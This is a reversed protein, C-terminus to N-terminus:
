NEFALAEEYSISEGQWSFDLMVQDNVRGIVMGELVRDDEQAFVENLLGYTVILGNDQRVLLINQEDSQASYIVIGDDIAIVDHDSVEYLNDQLHHYSSSSAVLVKDNLWNELFLWQKMQTLNLSSVMKEASEIVKDFGGAVYVREALVVAGCCLILTVLSFLSSIMKSAMSVEEKRLKAIRKHIEKRQNM